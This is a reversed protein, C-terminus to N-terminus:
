SFSLAVTLSVTFHSRCYKGYADREQEVTPARSSSYGRLTLRDRLSGPLLHLADALGLREARSGDSHKGDSHVAIRYGADIGAQSEDRGGVHLEDGRPEGQQLESLVVAELRPKGIAAADLVAHQM